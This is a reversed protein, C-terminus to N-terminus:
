FTHLFPLIWLNQTELVWKKEVKDLFHIENIKYSKQGKNWKQIREQLWDQTAKPEGPAKLTENDKSIYM